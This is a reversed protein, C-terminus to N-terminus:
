GQGIVRIDGSLEDRVVMVEGRQLIPEPIYGEDLCEFAQNPAASTCRVRNVVLERPHDRRRRSSAVANKETDFIDGGVMWYEAGVVPKKIKPM